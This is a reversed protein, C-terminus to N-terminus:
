EAIKHLTYDWLKNPGVEETWRFIQIVSKCYFGRFKKHGSPEFCDMLKHTLKPIKVLRAFRYPRILPTTSLGGSFAHGKYLFNILLSVSQGDFLLRPLVIAKNRADIEMPQYVKLKLFALMERAPLGFANDLVNSQARLLNEHLYVEERVEGVIFLTLQNGLGRITDVHALNSLYM